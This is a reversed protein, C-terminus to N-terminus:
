MQLFAVCCYFFSIPMLGLLNCHFVVNVRKEAISITMFWHDKKVSQMSCEIFCASMSFCTYKMSAARLSSSLLYMCYAIIM